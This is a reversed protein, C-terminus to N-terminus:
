NFRVFQEESFNILAELILIKDWAGLM